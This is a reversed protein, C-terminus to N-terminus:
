SQCLQIQCGLSLVAAGHSDKQPSCPECDIADRRALKSDKILSSM